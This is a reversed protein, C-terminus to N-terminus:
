IETFFHTTSLFQSCGKLPELTRGIDVTLDNVDVSHRPKRVHFAINLLSMVPTLWRVRVKVREAPGVALPWATWALSGDDNAAEAWWSKTLARRFRTVLVWAAWKRLFAAVRRDEPLGAGNKANTPTLKAEPDPIMVLCSSNSHTHESILFAALLVTLLLSGASVVESQDKVSKSIPGTMALPHLATTWAAFNVIFPKLFIPVVVEVVGSESYGRAM